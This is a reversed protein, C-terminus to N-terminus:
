QAPAGADVLGIEARGPVIAGPVPTIADGLFSRLQVQYRGRVLGPLVAQSWPGAVAVVVGDVLV